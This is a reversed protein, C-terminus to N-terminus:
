YFYETKVFSNRQTLALTGMEYDDMDIDMMRPVERSPTVPDGAPVPEAPVRGPEIPQDPTPEIPQKPDPQMLTM